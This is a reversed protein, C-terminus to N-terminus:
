LSGKGPAFNPLALVTTNSLLVGTFDWNLGNYCLEADAMAM